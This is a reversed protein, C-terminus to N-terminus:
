MRRLQGQRAVLIQLTGTLADVVVGVVVQNNKIIDADRLLNNLVNDLTVTNNNLINNLVRVDNGNLVNTVDIVDNVTLNNLINQAQVNVDGVQINVLNGAALIVDTADTIQAKVSTSTFSMTAVMAIAIMLTKM